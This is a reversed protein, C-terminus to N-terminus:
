SLFTFIKEAKLLPAPYKAAFQEGLSYAEATGEGLSGFAIVPRFTTESIRIFATKVMQIFPNVSFRFSCLAEAPFINVCSWCSTSCRNGTGM